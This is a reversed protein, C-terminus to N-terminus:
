MNVQMMNFNDECQTWAIGYIAEADTKTFIHPVGYEDRIIDINDVNIHVDVQSFLSTSIFSLLFFSFIFRSM